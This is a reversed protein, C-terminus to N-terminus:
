PSEATGDTACTLAFTRENAENEPRYILFRENRWAFDRLNVKKMDAFTIFTTSPICRDLFQIVLSSQKSNRWM